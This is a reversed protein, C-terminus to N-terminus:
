PEPKPIKDSHGFQGFGFRGSGSNKGGSNRPKDELYICYPDLSADYGSFYGLSIFNAVNWGLMNIMDDEYGLDVNSDCFMPNDVLVDFDFETSSSPPSCIISVHSYDLPSPLVNDCGLNPSDKHVFVDRCGELATKALDHVEHWYIL